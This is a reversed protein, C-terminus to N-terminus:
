HVADPVFSLSRITVGGRVVHMTVTNEKTRETAVVGAGFASIRLALAHNFELSRFGEPVPIKEEIRGTPAGAATAKWSRIRGADIGFAPCLSDISAAIGSEAARRASEPEASRFASPGVLGVVTLVLAALALGSAIMLRRRFPVSLPTETM